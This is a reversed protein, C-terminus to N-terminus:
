SGVPCELLLVKIFAKGLIKLRTPDKTFNQLRNGKLFSKVSIIWILLRGNLFQNKLTGPVVYDLYAHTINLTFRVKIKVKVAVNNWSAYVGSFECLGRFIVPQFVVKSPSPLQEPEINM